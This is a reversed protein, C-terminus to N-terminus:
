AYIIIVKNTAFFTGGELDLENNPHISAKNVILQRQSFHIKFTQKIEIWLYKGNNIKVFIVNLSSLIKITKHCIIALHFFESLIM